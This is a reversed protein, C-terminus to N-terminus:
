RNSFSFTKVLLLSLSQVSFFSLFKVNALVTVYKHFTGTQQQLAAPYIIFKILLFPFLPLQYKPPRAIAIHISYLYYLTAICHFLPMWNIRAWHWQNSTNLILIFFLTVWYGFICAGYCWYQIMKQLINTWLTDKRDDCVMSPHTGANSVRFM